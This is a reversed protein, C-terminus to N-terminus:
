VNIGAGTTSKGSLDDTSFFKESSDLSEKIEELLGDLNQEIKLHDHTTKTTEQTDDGENSEILYPLSKESASSTDASPIGTFNERNDSLLKNFDASSDDEKKQDEKKSNITSSSRERSGVSSVSSTSFQAERLAKPTYPIEPISDFNVELEPNNVLLTSKRVLNVDSGSGDNIHSLSGSSSSNPLKTLDKKFFKPIAQSIPSNSPSFNKFGAQVDKTAVALKSLRKARSPQKGNPLSSTSSNATTPSNMPKTFNFHPSPSSEFKEIARNPPTQYQQRPAKQPSQHQFQSYPHAKPSNPKEQKFRMPAGVPSKPLYNAPSQLPRPMPASFQKATTSNLSNTNQDDKVIPPPNNFNRSVQQPPTAMRQKAFAPPQMRPSQVTSSQVPAQPPTHTKSETQSPPAPLPSQEKLTPSIVEKTSKFSDSDSKASQTEPSSKPTEIAADVLSQVKKVPVPVAKTVELPEELSKSETKEVPSNEARIVDRDNKSVPTQVDLSGSIPKAAHSSEFSSKGSQANEFIAIDRPPSPHSIRKLDSKKPSSRKTHKPASPEESVNSKKNAGLLNCKKATFAPLLDKKQAEKKDFQGLEKEKEDDVADQASSPPTLYRNNNSVKDASTIILWDCDGITKTLKLVVTNQLFGLFTEYKWANIFWESIELKSVRVPNNDINEMNSNFNFNITDAVFSGNQNSSDAKDFGYRSFDNIMTSILEKNEFLTGNKLGKRFEDIDNGVKFNEFNLNKDFKLLYNKSSKSFFHEIIKHPNIEFKDLFKNEFKTFNHNSSYIRSTANSANSILKFYNTTSLEPDSPVTLTLAKQTVPKYPKPPYENIKFLELLTEHGFNPEKSLSRLYSIFIQYFAYGRKYYFTQLENLDDDNQSQTPKFEDRNFCIQGATFILDAAVNLDLFFNDAFVYLLIELFEFLVCAHNHSPLSTPLVQYFSQVNTYNTKKEYAEFKHYSKWPIIANPLLSWIIRLSLILTIWTSKTILAELKEGTFSCGEYPFMARIFNNAESIDEDDFQGLSPKFVDYILAQEQKTAKPNGTIEKFRKKLEMTLYHIVYRASNHNIQNSALVDFNEKLLSCNNFKEYDYIYFFESKLRNNKAEIILDLHNFDKGNVVNIEKGINKEASTELKASSVSNSQSSKSLFKSM